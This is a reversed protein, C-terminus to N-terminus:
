DQNRIQWLLSGFRKAFVPVSCRAEVFRRANQGLRTRLESDHQLRQMAARLALVDRPPVTLCTEGPVIYDRIGETDTVIVAKAMAGAELITSVGSANMTQGTLPVVVFSSRAYYDRLELHSLWHSVQQVRAHRQADLQLPQRSKVVADAPFDALADLLAQFDRGADDGVSLIPGNIGDTGDPAYFCTDVRHGIIEVPPPASWRKAIYRKQNAGLVMIARVRPVVYNLIRNGIAWSETLSIDWLVVPTKFFTLRRLLLVPVAPGQFVSVVLDFRRKTLAVKVGRIPDISEVLPSHKAFPKWLYSGPDVAESEIGLERLQKPLEFPDPGSGPVFSREYQMTQQLTLFLVRMINLNGGAM